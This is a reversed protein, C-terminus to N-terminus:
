ATSSTRQRANRSVSRASRWAADEGAFLADQSSQTLRVGLTTESLTTGDGRIHAVPVGQEALVRTVLLRRHCNTPDEESCMMAVRFKESGDLLRRVGALFRETTAVERYLVHGEEDYCEPEPPRGGLERGLFVYQVHAARLAARLADRNFQPSFRSFPQSRIDAVVAIGAQRLLAIFSDADHNSHGISWIPRHEHM